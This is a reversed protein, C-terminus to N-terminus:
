KVEPFETSLDKSVSYMPQAIQNISRISDMIM